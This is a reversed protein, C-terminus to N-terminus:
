SSGKALARIQDLKAEAVQRGLQIYKMPNRFDSWKGDCAIPRLVVDAQASSGEAVRTEAGQISRIIVDLINGTAFYNIHRNFWSENKRRYSYSQGVAQCARLEAPNPITNVAVIRDIEMEM